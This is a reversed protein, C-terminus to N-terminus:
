LGFLFYQISILPLDEYKKTYIPFTEQSANRAKSLLDFGSTVYFPSSALVEEIIKVSPLDLQAVCFSKTDHTTRFYLESM